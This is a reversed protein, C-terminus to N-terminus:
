MYVAVNKLFESNPIWEGNEHSREGRPQRPWGAAECAARLAHRCLPIARARPAGRGARSPIPPAMAMAMAMAQAQAQAQAAPTGTGSSCCADPAASTKASAGAPRTRPRTTSVSLLRPSKASAYRPMGKAAAGVPVRPTGAAWRPRAQRFLSSTPWGPNWARASLAQYGNLPTAGCPPTTKADQGIALPM